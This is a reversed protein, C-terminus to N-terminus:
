ILPTEQGVIKKLLHSANETIWQNFTYEKKSKWDCIMGFVNNKCLDQDLIYISDAIEFYRSFSNYFCVVVCIKGERVFYMCWHCLEPLYLLNQTTVRPLQSFDKFDTKGLIGYKIDQFRNHNIYEEGKLAALVNIAVKAYVRGILDSETQPIEFMPNGVHHNIQKPKSRSLFFSLEKKLTEICCGSGLAVYYKGHYIGIIWEYENMYSSYISTYKENFNAAEEKFNNWAQQPSCHQETAVTFVFQNKHKTLSNIYYGKKCSIYGLSVTGGPKRLVCIKSKSAKRPNFSGRKGPGFISRPISLLSDHMLLSELPSFLENAQDSVYGTPLMMKGGLGAPFIHERKNYTLGPIDGYYICM